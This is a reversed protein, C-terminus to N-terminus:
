PFQQFSPTEYAVQGRNPFVVRVVFTREMGLLRRDLGDLAHAIKNTKSNLHKLLRITDKQAKGHIPALQQDAASAKATRETARSDTNERRKSARASNQVGSAAASPPEGLPTQAQPVVNVEVQVHPITAKEEGGRRGEREPTVSGVDYNGSPDVKEPPKPAPRPASKPGDLAREEEDANSEVSRLLQKRDERSSPQLDQPKLGEASGSRNDESLVPSTPGAVKETDARKTESEEQRQLRDDGAEPPDRGGESNSRSANAAAREGRGARKVIGDLAKSKTARGPDKSGGRREGPHDAEATSAGESKGRWGLRGVGAPASLPRSPHPRGEEADTAELAFLSRGAAERVAAVSDHKGRVAGEVCKARHEGLPGESGRLEALLALSTIVELAAKREKWTYARRVPCQLVEMVARAIAPLGKKLTAPIGSLERCIATTAAKPITDSTAPDHEGYAAHSHALAAIADFLQGRTGESRGNALAELLSALIEESNATIRAHHATHALHVRECFGQPRVACNPLLIFLPQSLNQRLSFFYDRQHRWRFCFQTKESSLLRTDFCARPIPLWVAKALFLSFPLLFPAFPLQAPRTQIPAMAMPAQAHAPHKSCGYAVVSVNCRVEPFPDVSWNSPLDRTTASLRDFFQAAAAVDGLEIVARGGPLLVAEKPVANTTGGREAARAIALRVDDISRLGTELEVPVCPSPPLISAVCCAGASERVPKRQEGVLRLFRRAHVMCATATGCRLASLMVSGVCAALEGRLSATEDDRVRDQVYSIIGAHCKSAARQQDWCLWALLRLTYRRASLSCAGGVGRAAIVVQGVQASSAGRVLARLEGYAAAETSRVELRQMSELLRRQWRHALMAAGEQENWGGSAVPSRGRETNDRTAKAALRSLKPSPRVRALPSTDPWVATHAEEAPPEERTWDREAGEFESSSPVRNQEALQREPSGYTDRWRPREEISPAMEAPRVSSTQPDNTRGAGSQVTAAAQIEAASFRPQVPKLEFPRQRLHAPSNLVTAEPASKPRVFTTGGRKTLERSTTSGGRPPSMSVTRRGHLGETGRLRKIRHEFSVPSGTGQEGLDAYEDRLLVSDSGVFFGVAIKLGGQSKKLVGCRELPYWRAPLQVLQTHAMINGETLVTELSIEVRGLDVYHVDGDADDHDRVLINVRGSLVDEVTQIELPFVFEADWVPDM